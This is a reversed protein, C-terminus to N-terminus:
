TSPCFGMQINIGKCICLLVKKFSVNFYEFELAVIHGEPATILWQCGKGDALYHKPYYPSTLTTKSLWYQCSDDTSHFFFCRIFFSIHKYIIEISVTKKLPHELDGWRPLKLPHKLHLLCKIACQHFKLKLKLPRLLTLM